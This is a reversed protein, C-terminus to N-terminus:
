IPKEMTKEFNESSNQLIVFYHKVAHSGFTVWFFLLLVLKTSGVEVTLAAISIMAALSHIGGSEMEGAANLRQSLQELSL